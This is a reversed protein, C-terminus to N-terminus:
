IRTPIALIFHGGSASAGLRLEGDHDRAVRHVLALGLGSGGSKTTFGPRFVSARVQDPVGPGDDLVELRAQGDERHVCVRVVGPRDGIAEIANKVLNTTARRMQDPDALVPAERDGELEFSIQPAAPRFLDVVSKAVHALDVPEFRPEPMKAFESFTEAIRQLSEVEEAISRLSENAEADKEIRSRLRHVALKVPTLPNRIEHAIRQAVDRWAAIREARLLDARSREIEQAMRNFSTVLHGIEDEAHVTARHALDGAALRDASRALEAVPRGIRRATFRAVLAAGGATVFFIAAWSIWVIKKQIEIFYELQLYRALTEDGAELARAVEGSVRLGLGLYGEGSPLQRFFRLTEDRLLPPMDGRGLASWEEVTPVGRGSEKSEREIVTQTGSRSSWALFDFGRADLFRERVEAPDRLSQAGGIDTALIDAEWNLRDILESGMVASIALSEELGPNRLQDLADTIRDTAIWSLLLSPVAALILLSALLRTEFRRIRPIARGGSHTGEGFDGHHVRGTGSAITERTRTM